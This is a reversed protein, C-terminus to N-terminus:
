LYQGVKYTFPFICPDGDGGGTTCGDVTSAVCTDNPGQVRAESDLLDSLKNLSQLDRVEGQILLIKKMAIHLNYRTISNMTNRWRRRM